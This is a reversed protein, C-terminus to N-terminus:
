GIVTNIARVWSLRRFDGELGVIVAEHLTKPLGVTPTVSATYLGTLILTTEFDSGHREGGVIGFRHVSAVLLGRRHASRWKADEDVIAIIIVVVVEIGLLTPCDAVSLRLDCDTM